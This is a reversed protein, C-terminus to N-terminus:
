AVIYGLWLWADGVIGIVCLVLTLRYLISDMAGGKLFVPKDNNEQFQKQLKAM